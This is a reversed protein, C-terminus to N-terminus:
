RVQQTGSVSAVSSFPHGQTIGPGVPEAGKFMPGGWEAKLADTLSSSGLGGAATSALGPSMTTNEDSVRMSGARVQRIGAPLCKYQLVRSAARSADAPRRDSEIAM